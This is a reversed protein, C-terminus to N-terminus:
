HRVPVVLVPEESARVIKDAVSGLLMREVRGPGHTAMVILDPAEREAADLIGKAAGVGFEVRTRAKLDRARLGAAIGELREAVTSERAGAPEAEAGMPIPVGLAPVPVDVVHLLVYETEASGLAIAAEIAVASGESADLPILIRRYPPSGAVALAEITPRILLIPRDLTRMLEDAVSGLWFRSLPGRGHTTMIVLDAVARARRAIAPAVRGELLSTTVELGAARAQAAREDLYAAEESTTDPIPASGGAVADTYVEWATPNVHVRVLQLAAGTAAALRQALPLAQESLRSGDLPVLITRFITM